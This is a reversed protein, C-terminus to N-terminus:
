GAYVVEKFLPNGGAPYKTLGKVWGAKGGKIKVHLYIKNHKTNIYLRDITAKKGPKLTTIKKGGPAKRVSMSRNATWYFGKADTEYIKLLKPKTTKQVMKGSKYQYNLRFSIYGLSYSMEHYTVGIQNGSASINSVSNHYGIKDMADLDIAKKLKGNKYQYIAAEPIDSNDISAAIALYVKGNNLKLRQINIRYSFNSGNSKASLAKKGNIFVEYRGYMKYSENWPASVRFTDAKKDGTVDYQTYTKNVELTNNAAKAEAPSPMAAFIGIALLFVAAAIWKTFNKTEM